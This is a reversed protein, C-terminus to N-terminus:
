ISEYRTYHTMVFKSAAIPNTMEFTISNSGSAVLPNPFIAFKGFAESQTINGIVNGDVSSTATKNVFDLTVTEGAVLPSTYAIEYGMDDHTITFDDCSGTVVIVPYEPWTGVYSIVETQDPDAVLGDVTTVIATPDYIVPNYATFTIQELFSFKDWVNQNDEYVPGQSMFGDLQFEEGSSLVRLLHAEVPNIVDTNSFNIISQFTRRIEWYKDRTRGRHHLLINIPRPLLRVGTVTVGHQYPNRTTEIENPPSGWGTVSLVTRLPRDNLQYTNGEQDIYILFEEVKSRMNRVTM